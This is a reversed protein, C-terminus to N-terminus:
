VIPRGGRRSLRRVKAFYKCVNESAASLDHSFPCANGAQCAGQRFFKCPVHSTDTELARYGTLVLGLLSRQVRGRLHTPRRGGDVLTGPATYSPPLSTSPPSRPGDFRHPASIPSMMAGARGSQPQINLSGSRLHRHESPHSTAMTSTKKLRPNPHACLRSPNPDTSPGSERFASQPASLPGTSPCNLYLVPARGPRRWVTVFSFSDSAFDPSCIRCSPFGFHPYELGGSGAAILSRASLSSSHFILPISCSLPIYSHPSRLQQRGQCEPSTHSTRPKRQPAPPNRRMSYTSHPVTLYNHQTHTSRREAPSHWGGLAAPPKATCRLM